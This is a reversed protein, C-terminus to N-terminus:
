KPADVLSLKAWTALHAYPPTPALTATPWTLKASIAAIPLSFSPMPPADLANINPLANYVTTWVLPAHSANQM